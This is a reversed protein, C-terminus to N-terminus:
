GSLRPFAQSASTWCAQAINQVRKIATLLNMLKM